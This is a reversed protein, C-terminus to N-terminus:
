LTTTLELVEPVSGFGGKLHTVCNLEDDLQFQM